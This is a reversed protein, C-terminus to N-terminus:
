RVERWGTVTYVNTGLTGSYTMTANGSITNQEVLTDVSDASEVIIQGGFSPNGSIGIQEHVLVHGEISSEFNGSIKLDGDTVFLLGTTEPVLTPNGGIEISGEAIVTIRLPVSTSGPNGSIRATGEVYYTGDAASNGGMTWGPDSFEWGYTKKCSNKSSVEDCLTTGGGPLTMRGTSTLIFDAKSLHDSARVEPVDLEAVGGGASGGVVPHGSVVYDGSATLDDSVMPNGSVILDGNAHVSGQMGTVAPSGSITLDDNVIIAPLQYPSLLAEVVATANTQAYGVARVVLRRNRDTLPEGDEDNSPDDDATLDTPDGRAPDDEDIIRVEYGTAADAAGAIPIRTGLTMTPELVSPDALLADLADEVAAPDLGKIYDIAAQVAHNLGAEAAARAQAASQHNRAVLIETRGSVTLAGALASMMLMLMLVIVLAAGREERM